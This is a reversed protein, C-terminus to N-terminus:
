QQLQHAAFFPKITGADLKGCFRLNDSSYSHMIKQM